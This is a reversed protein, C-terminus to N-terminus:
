SECRARPGARRVDDIRARGVWAFGHELDGASREGLEDDFRDSVTILLEVEGDIEAPRVTADERRLGEARM